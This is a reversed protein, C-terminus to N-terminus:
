LIRCASASVRFGLNRLGFLVFFQTRNLFKLQTVPTLVGIM